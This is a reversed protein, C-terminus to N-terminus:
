KPPQILFLGLAFVLMGFVFLGVGAYDGYYHTVPVPALFATAAGGVFMGTGMVIKIM